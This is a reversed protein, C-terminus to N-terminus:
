NSSPTIHQNPFLQNQYSGSIHNAKYDTLHVYSRILCVTNHQLHHCLKLLFIHSLSGPRVQRPLWNQALDQSFSYNKQTRSVASPTVDMARSNICPEHARSRPVGSMFAHASHVECKSHRLQTMCMRAYGVSERNRDGRTPGTSHRNNATLPSKFPQWVLARARWSQPPSHHTFEVNFTYICHSQRGLFSYYQKKYVYTTYLSM